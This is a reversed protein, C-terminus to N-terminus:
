DNGVGRIKAILLLVLPIPIIFWLGFYYEFKLYYNYVMGLDNPYLAVFLIIPILPLVFVNERKFRCSRSGLLGILYISMSVYMYVSFIWVILMLAEQNEVISDKTGISKMLVIVPWIQSQTEKVGNQTICLLTIITQLVGIIIVARNGAKRSMSPTKMLGTLILLIEIPVFMVSTLVTGIGVESPQVRFFPLVEGYDSHFILILLAIILPVGIFIILIESMRATSEVGSKVLYAACLILVILIMSIPTKPLMIQSIMEGFLRLELGVSIILKIALLLVLTRALWQPLLTHTIEVFTSGSFRTTLATVVFVYFIGLIIAIISAVYGNRALYNTSVRPMILMNMNFMQLILLITVQRTSIKGNHSFM